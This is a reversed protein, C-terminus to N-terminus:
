PLDVIVYYRRTKLTECSGINFRMTSQNACSSNATIYSLGQALTSDVKGATVLNAFPITGDEDSLYVSVAFPVDTKHAATSPTKCYTNLTINGSGTITFTYWLTRRKFPWTVTDTGYIAYNTPMPYLVSNTEATKLSGIGCKGGNPELAGPENAEAGTKCSIFDNSPPPLIAL